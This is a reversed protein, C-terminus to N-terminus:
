CTACLHPATGPAAGSGGCTACPGTTTLRLPVTVGRLADLLALTVEADVDQGRQPGRQGGGGGARGTFLGGLVDGLGGSQGTRGLLDGLDFGPTGGGGYGGGPARRPGVGFLSRAEDYERRKTTDSLVDYAQSVDKFRAEGGPNTDPHLERALTRYAKKIDAASAQKPVGLAAYYDKEVDRASM